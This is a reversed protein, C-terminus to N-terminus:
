PINTHIPTIVWDSRGRMLEVGFELTEFAGAAAGTNYKIENTFCVFIQDVLSLAHGFCSEHM